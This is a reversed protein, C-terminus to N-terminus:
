PVLRNRTSGTVAVETGRRKDQRKEKFFETIIKGCEKALVGPFLNIKHNLRPDNYMNYISIAAGTKPDYAGFYLSDIRAHILAGMCMPCPELTVYLRTGTLRYNKLLRAGKRLALIEAHATPDNMIISMNHAKSIIQNKNDTLVAGVPVEGLEKAKQAMNIAEKMMALDNHTLSINEM